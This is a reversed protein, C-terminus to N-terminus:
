GEREEDQHGCDHGSNCLVGVFNSKIFILNGYNRFFYVPPMKIGGM